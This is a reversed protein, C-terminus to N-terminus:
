RLGLESESWHGDVKRTRIDDCKLCIELISTFEGGGNRYVMHKFSRYQWKHLHWM